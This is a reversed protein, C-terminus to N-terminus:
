RAPFFYLGYLVALAAALLNVFGIPMLIKWELRMLQDVRLRPFTWRFWMIVFVVVASKGAFWVWPPVLDMVANFALWGGLHLPMWGGLFLTVLMAAAVFMNVFESLFFFAFRLGSYETHYGATLESEGEAIDFPTRNIEAVSAILFIVGAVLGVGPARWIWWGAAQSQVIQSLQMTGALLVVVLLALSASLEYSVIQAGARMAGILSWKNNSSWGAVLIGLVGLGSVASVYLVGINVDAIQLAPGAPLVLLVLLTALLSLFPAVLHLLKDAQAPVIDEKLLLKIMDAVTQFIGHWGVRMPGLRCQFHAAIKREAYILVLGLGATAAALVLLGLLVYGIMWCLNDRALAEAARKALTTVEWSRATLALPLNAAPIIAFTKM